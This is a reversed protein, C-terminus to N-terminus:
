FYMKVNNAELSKIVFMQDANYYGELRIKEKDGDDIESQILAAADVVYSVDGEKYLKAIINDGDVRVVTSMYGAMGTSTGAVATKVSLPLGSIEMEKNDANNDAYVSSDYGSATVVALLGLSLIKKM